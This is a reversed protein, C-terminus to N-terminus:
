MQRRTGTMWGGRLVQNEALLSQNKVLLRENEACCVKLEARLQKKTKKNDGTERERNLRKLENSWKNLADEPPNGMFGRRFNIAFLNAKAGLGSGTEISQGTLPYEKMGGRMNKRLPKRLSRNHSRRTRRRRTNKRLPKRLSRNNSRTRRRSKRPM